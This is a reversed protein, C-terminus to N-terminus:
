FVLKRIRARGFALSTDGWQVSTGELKRATDTREGSLIVRGTCEYKPSGNGAHRTCGDLMVTIGESPLGPDMGATGSIIDGRMVSMATSFSLTRGHEPTSSRFTIETTMGNGGKM